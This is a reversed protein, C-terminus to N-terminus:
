KFNIKQSDNFYSLTLMYNSIKNKLDADNLGKWQEVLYYKDTEINSIYGLFKPASTQVCFRMFRIEANWPNKNVAEELLSKGKKFYTYKAYPNISLNAELFYAMGKYALLLADHEVSISEMKFMFDDALKKNDLSQYYQKRLEMKDIHNAFSLTSILCFLIIILKRM